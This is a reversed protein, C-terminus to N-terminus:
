GITAGATMRMVAYGGLAIAAIILIILLIVMLLSSTVAGIAKAIFDLPNEMTASSKQDVYSTIQNFIGAKDIEKLTAAAFIKSGQTLEIQEFVVVNTNLFDAQQNQKIDTYSRQINSMTVNNRVINTLNAQAESTSSGFAGLLAVNTASSSQAITEIIKNQLEVQKNVDNFCEASIDSQQDMKYTGWLKFGTNVVTLSQSQQAAIECSQVTSIAVNSIASSLASVTTKSESGGM